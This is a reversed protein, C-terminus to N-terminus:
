LLKDRECSPVEGRFLGQHILICDSVARRVFLAM